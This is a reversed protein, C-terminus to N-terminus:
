EEHAILWFKNKDRGIQCPISNSCDNLISYLESVDYLNPKQTYLHRRTDAEFKLCLKKEHVRVYVKATSAFFAVDAWAPALVSLFWLLKTLDIHPLCSPAPDCRHQVSFPVGEGQGRMFLTMIPGLLQYLMHSNLEIGQPLASFLNDLPWGLLLEEGDFADLTDWYIPADWDNIYMQHLYDEYSGKEFVRFHYEDFVEKTEEWYPSSVQATYEGQKLDHSDIILFHYNSHRSKSMPQTIVPRKSKGGQYPFISLELIKNGVGPIKVLSKILDGQCYITSNFYLQPRKVVWSCTPDYVLSEIKFSEM